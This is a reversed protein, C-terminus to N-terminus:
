NRRKARVIPQSIWWAIAPAGLWLLLFPFANMLQAPQTLLLGLLASSAIFPAIWMTAYFSELDTRANREADSATQWQLLHKRTFVLRVLTRSIADLSVYADYPLFALTLALQGLQRALSKGTTRLHMLWPWESPKRLLEGLIPLLGPLVIIGFVLLSGLRGFQPMVLWSALLLLTLAGPLLSRRLNDFIKWQSLGSLPNAINRADPGPVRPLLWQAIQWDGRIWRHRRNIDANYRSPHEEYFEVDSILASRAHLSEILDHSLITNEPFRGQVAREFADVDYIGKGIFSGEGFVDQYVDSVARTYPDIGADGAFLRVFWSRGASPLSVGVRPQLISYGETVLGTQPNFQPCNLPHAITGVLQRAADRPLQTDTDLTIVFKIGPLLALDGVIRSFRERAGGRLLANFEALKGRKREHGMWVKEAENWQRPRHFLFFINTRDAAYKQNLLTIGESIQNLLYDDSPMTESAADRFETLLSFYLNKDCNALYHIEVSELLRDIATAGELMTPVVVMTRCDPAIGNSCDLRPLRRPKVLYSSLWNMLAVAFQSLCLLTVLTLFILKGGHIDLNSADRGVAITAPVMIAAMGGGYFWLPFRRIYKEVLVRWPWSVSASTELVQQGKDILFYGM